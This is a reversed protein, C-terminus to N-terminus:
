GPLTFQCTIRREQLPGIWEAVLRKHTPHDQYAQWAARDAFIAVLAFDGGTEPRWGLDSGYWFQEVVPIQALAEDIHKPLDDILARPADSKWTFIVIHKIM